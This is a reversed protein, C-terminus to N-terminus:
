FTEIAIKNKKAFDIISNKVEKQRKFNSMTILIEKELNIKSSILCYESEGFPFSFSKFAIKKIDERLLETRFYTPLEKHHFILRDKYIKINSTKTWIIKILVLSLPTYFDYLEIMLWELKLFVYFLALLAIIWYDTLFKYNFRKYNTSMFM